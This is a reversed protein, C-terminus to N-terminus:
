SILDIISLRQHGLGVTAEPSIYIGSDDPGRHAITKSMASIAEPSITKQNFTAKGVIGCM